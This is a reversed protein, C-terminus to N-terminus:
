GLAHFSSEAFDLHVIRCLDGALAVLIAQTTRWACQGTCQHHALLYPAFPKSTASWRRIYRCPHSSRLVGYLPLEVESTRCCPGFNNPRQGGTLV